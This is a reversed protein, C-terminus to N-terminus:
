LVKVTEQTFDLIGEKADEIIFYMGTQEERDLNGTFNIQHIGKPDSDLAQQKFTRFKWCATKVASSKKRLM